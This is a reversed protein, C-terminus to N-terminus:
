RHEIPQNHEFPKLDLADLLSLDIVNAKDEMFFEALLLASNKILFSLLLLRIGTMSSTAATNLPARLGWSM